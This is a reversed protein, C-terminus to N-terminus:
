PPVGEQLLCDVEEQIREKMKQRRKAALNRVRRWKRPEGVPMVAAEGKPIGQHGETSQMIGPDPETETSENWATTEKRGGKLDM